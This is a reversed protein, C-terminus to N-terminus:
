AKELISFAEKHSLFVVNGSQDRFQLVFNNGRFKILEGVQLEYRWNKMKQEGKNLPPAQWQKKVKYQKGRELVELRDGM